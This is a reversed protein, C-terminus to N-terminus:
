PTRPDEGIAMLLYWTAKALDENGGKGAERWIYQLAQMKCGGRFEEPTLASRMADICEIDGSLYHPPSNVRDTM